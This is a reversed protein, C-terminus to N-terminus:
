LGLEALRRAIELRRDQDSLVEKRLDEFGEKAWLEIYSGMGAWLADRKLGAHKRLAAPILLRGVKDVDCEVAGSVYIRKLTVVNADFQPLASLRNEFALWETMPYAVLCSELGTTLILQSDGQATMVERFRSPVSTRGKADIAHEYRGRFL